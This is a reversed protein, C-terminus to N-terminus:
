RVTVTACGATRVVREAVSGLLVAAVAFPDQTGVVVLDADEAGAIEVISDEPPNPSIRNEVDWGENRLHDLWPGFEETVTGDTSGNGKSAREDVLHAIEGPGSRGHVLILQPRGLAAGFDRAFEVARRCAESFDLGIVIKKLPLAPPIRVRENVTVVPCSAQRITREAVSGLLVDRLGARGRAAIVVLDVELEGVVQAITPSAPGAELHTKCPVGQQSLVESWSELSRAASDRIMPLTDDPVTLEGEASVCSLPNWAHLLHLEAGLAKGVHTAYDLARRSHSSFDVPVLIKSFRSFAQTGPRIHAEM